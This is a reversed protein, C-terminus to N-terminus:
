LLAYTFHYSANTTYIVKRVDSSFKFIPSIVDWNTAWSKMANPYHEQWKETVEKMQQYGTEESPAHYITKLDTCFDNKAESSMNLFFHAVDIKNKDIGQELLQIIETIENPIDQKPKTPNLEPLYLRASIIIWIKETVM